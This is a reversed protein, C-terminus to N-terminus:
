QVVVPTLPVQRTPQVPVYQRLPVDSSYDWMFDYCYVQGDALRVCSLCNNISFAAVQLGELGAAFGPESQLVGNWIWRYMAGDPRFSAMDGTWTAVGWSETEILTPMLLDPAGWCWLELARTRGCALSNGVVLDVFRHGGSVVVASDSSSASGDGLPAAGWCAATSDQLLGCTRSPSSWLKTFGPSGPVASGTQGVRWCWATSDSVALGCLEDGDWADGDSALRFLPPLGGQLTMSPQAQTACWVAHQPDLACVAVGSVALDVFNHSDDVLAPSDSRRGSGPHLSPAPGNTIFNWCWLAGSVLGCGTGGNSALRDVRFATGMSQFEVQGGAPTSASVKNVGSTSGLTWVARAYGDADTTEATPAITGGGQQVWWNVAVGGRPTGSPDVTRIVLTDILAWGPAGVSSPAQVIVLEAPEPDTPQENCALAAAGM